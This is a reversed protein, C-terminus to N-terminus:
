EALRPGLSVAARITLGLPRAQMRWVVAESRETPGTKRTLGQLNM